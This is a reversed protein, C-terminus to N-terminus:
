LEALADDNMAMWSGDVTVDRNALYLDISDEDWDRRDFPPMKLIEAKLRGVPLETGMPVRWVERGGVVMCVLDLMSTRLRVLVDVTSIVHQQGDFCQSVGMQSDLLLLLEQKLLTSLAESSASMLVRATEITCPVREGENQMARYLHLSSPAMNSLGAATTIQEQLEKVLKDADLEVWVLRATSVIACMFTM